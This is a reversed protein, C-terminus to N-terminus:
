ATKQRRSRMFVTPLAIMLLITMNTSPEPIVSTGPTVVGNSVSYTLQSNTLGSPGVFSGPVLSGTFEQFIGAGNSYGVAASIGGLGNLGGSADGTEWQINGYNFLMDFNGAAIDSRDILVLQFQNLKDTNQLYYGVDIWNVGFAARGGVTDSGFRVIGSGAGQTDVDAFFPAIIPQTISGLGTPTFTNLPSNFTVNGNNNIYISNYTTGFFNIDFGIPVLGTSGDDNAPLSFTNFGPNALIAAHLPAIAFSATAVIFPFASRFKM